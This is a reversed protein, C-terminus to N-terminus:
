YRIEKGTRDIYFSRGEAVVRANSNEGFFDLTIEDYILPIVTKGATDIFGWKKNLKVAALGQSFDKVAEYKFPIVVQGGRDLYGWLGGSFEYNDSENYYYSVESEIAEDSEDNITEYSEESNDDGVADDSFLLKQTLSGGRNAACLGNSFYSIADYEFPVMQKGTVDLIGWKGDQYLGNAIKQGGTNAIIRGESITLIYDLNFPIIEIGNKDIVGWKEGATNSYQMVACVGYLFGARGNILGDFKAPIVEKGTKDLFGYKFGSRFFARDDEFLGLEDYKIPTVEKGKNDILGYKFYASQVTSLGNQFSTVFEYDFPIAPKGYTDIFGWRGNLKVAALGEFFGQADDYTLPIKEIGTHDVFGCKDNLIVLAYGNNFSGALDYKPPVITKGAADRFGFKGDGFFPSLKQASSMLFLLSVISFLTAKKM